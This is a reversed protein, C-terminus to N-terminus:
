EIRTKMKQVIVKRVTETVPFTCFQKYLARFGTESYKMHVEMSCHELGHKLSRLLENM